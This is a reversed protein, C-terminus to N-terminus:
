EGTNSFAAIQKVKKNRAFDSPRVHLRSKGKRFDIKPYAMAIVGSCIAEEPTDPSNKQRRGPWFGARLLDWASYTVDSMGKLVKLANKKAKATVDPRVALVDRNIRELTEIKHTRMAHAGIAGKGKIKPYMHYVKGGGLYVSSHTWPSDTFFSIAGSFINSGADNPKSVLIDGPKLKKKLEKMTDVIPTKKRVDKTDRTVTALKLLLYFGEQQAVNTM